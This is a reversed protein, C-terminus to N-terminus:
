PHTLPTTARKAMTCFYFAGSLNHAASKSKTPPNNPPTENEKRRPPSPNPNPSPSQYHRRSLRTHRRRPHTTPYREGDHYDIDATTVFADSQLIFHIPESTGKAQKIATKLADGSFVNGNVAIIKQGPFFKAKDAPGNWRVDAIAGDAASASASPTGSMSPAAAVAAPCGGHHARVELAQRHLISSTAAANSAPSTPTPTSTTSANTSSPPGITRCSRTSIPSSSM